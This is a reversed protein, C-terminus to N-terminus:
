FSAFLVANYTHNTHAEMFPWLNRFVRPTRYVSGSPARKRVLVAVGGSKLDLNVDFNLSGMYLMMGSIYLLPAFLLVGRRKFVLSLVM